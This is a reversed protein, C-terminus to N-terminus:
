TTDDSTCKVNEMRTTFLHTPLVILKTGSAQSKESERKIHCFLWLFDPSSGAQQIKKKTSNAKKLLEEGKKETPREKTLSATNAPGDTTFLRPSPDESSLCCGDEVEFREGRVAPGSVLPAQTPINPTTSTCSGSDTM